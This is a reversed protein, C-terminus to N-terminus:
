EMRDRRLDKLKRISEIREIDWMETKDVNKALFDVDINAKERIRRDRKYGKIEKNVRRIEAQKNVAEAIRKDVLEYFKGRIQKSSKLNGKLNKRNERMAEEEVFNATISFSCGEQSFFQAFIADPQWMSKDVDDKTQKGTLLTEDFARWPRMIMPKKERAKFQWIKNDM